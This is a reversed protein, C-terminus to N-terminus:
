RDLQQIEGLLELELTEFTEILVFACVRGGSITFVGPRAGVLKGSRFELIDRLIAV